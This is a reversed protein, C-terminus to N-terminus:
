WAAAIRGVRQKNYPPVPKDVLPPLMTEIDLLTVNEPM